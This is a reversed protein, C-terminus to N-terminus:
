YAMCYSCFVGDKKMDCHLWNFDNFWQQQCPRERKEFASNELKFSKKRHYRPFLESNVHSDNITSLNKVTKDESATDVSNPLEKDVSPVYYKRSSLSDKSKKFFSKISKSM